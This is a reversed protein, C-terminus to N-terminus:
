RWHFFTKLKRTAFGERHFAEFGRLTVQKGWDCCPCPASPHLQERCPNPHIQRPNRLLRLCSHARLAAEPLFWGERGEPRQRPPQEVRKSGPGRWHWAKRRLPQFSRSCSRWSWGRPIGIGCIHQCRNKHQSLLEARIQEKGRQRTRATRATHASQAPLPPNEWRLAAPIRNSNQQLRVGLKM